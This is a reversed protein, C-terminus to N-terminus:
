QRHEEKRISIEGSIIRRETGDDERVILAYDNEVDILRCCLSGTGGTVSIRENKWMLRSRYSALMEKSALDECCRFFRTIVGAALRNRTDDLPTAFVAGAISRIEEPFGGAPEYANIGIGVVAYDLGGNELSLTAETLIGCVKLGEVMVDNVWKIGAKRGSLQEVTEAVAVAAAATIRVSDHAPMRPRLLISLYLGTDAPSYFSRGLRGKGGTQTGSIVVTGEPAGKEAMERLVTNTSSVTKHVSLRIEAPCDGLYKEIGAASIMDSGTSLCYGRNTVARIDYGDRRLATVAKWVASRSCGLQEALEEGSLFRGRNNEFLTILKLKTKM